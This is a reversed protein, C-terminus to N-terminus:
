NLDFTLGLARRTKDADNYQATLAIKIGSKLITTFSTSITGLADGKFRLEADPANEKDSNRLNFNYQAGVQLNIYGQGQKWVVNSAAFFDPRIRQVFGMEFRNLNRTTAYVTLPGPHSCAGLSFAQLGRNDYKLEFGFNTKAIKLFTWVSSIDLKYSNSSLHVDAFANFRKNEISASLKSAQTGYLPSYHNRVGFKTGLAINKSLVDVTITNQTDWKEALIFSDNEYKCQVSAQAAGGSIAQVAESSFNLKHTEAPKGNNARVRFVGGEYKTSLVDRVAKNIQTFNPVKDEAM